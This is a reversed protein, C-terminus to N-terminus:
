AEPEDLIHIAERVIRDIKLPNVKETPIPMGDGDKFDWIEALKRKARDMTAFGMYGYSGIPAIDDGEGPTALAKAKWRIIKEKSRRRAAMAHEPTVSKVWGIGQRVLWLFIRASMGAMWAKM